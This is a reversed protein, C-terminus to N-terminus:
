TNRTSVAYALGVCRRCMEIGVLMWIKCYQLNIRIVSHYWVLVTFTDVDKVIKYLKLMKIAIYNHVCRSGM